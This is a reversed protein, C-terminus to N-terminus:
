WLLGELFEDLLEVKTVQLPSLSLVCCLRIMIIRAPGAVQSIHLDGINREGLPLEGTQAAEVGLARHLELLPLVLDMQGTLDPTLVDFYREAPLVLVDAPATLYLYSFDLVPEADFLLFIGLGYHLECTFLFM